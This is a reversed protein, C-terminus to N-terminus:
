QGAPAVEDLFQRFATWFAGSYPDNHGGGHLEVFRKHAAPSADFLKRASWQPIMTDSTGHAQLLPQPCSAIREASPYRNRMLWGVPLWPYHSAAVEVLSSFASSLVLAKCGESEALEIAVAGGLSRGFFIVEDPTTRTRENLWKLAAQADRRIGRESPRGESKGYGRYDFVLVSLRFRDRLDALVDAQQGANEGNGHFYLVTGRPKPHEVFWGHLRTGDDATFDADEVTVLSQDWDGTPFRPAPYVLYNEFLMLLILVGAYCAMVIIGLRKLRRAVSM